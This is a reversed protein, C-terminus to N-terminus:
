LTVRGAARAIFDRMLQEANPRGLAVAEYVDLPTIEVESAGKFVQFGRSELETILDNDDFDSLDVDVDIDVYKSVTVTRSM